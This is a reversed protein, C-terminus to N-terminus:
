KAAGEVTTVLSQQVDKPVLAASPQRTANGALWPPPNAGNADNTRNGNEGEEVAMRTPSNLVARTSKPSFVAIARVAYSKPSQM